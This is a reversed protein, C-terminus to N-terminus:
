GKYTDQNMYQGYSSRQAVGEFNPAPACSMALFMGTAAQPLFLFLFLSVSGLTYIWGTGTPIKRAFLTQNISRIGLREDFWGALARRTSM